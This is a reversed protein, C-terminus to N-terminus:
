FYRVEATNWNNKRRIYRSSLMGELSVVRGRVLMESQAIVSNSKEM